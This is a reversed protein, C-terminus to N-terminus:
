RNQKNFIGQLSVDGSHLGFHHQTLVKQWGGIKRLVDTDRNETASGAAPMKAEYKQSRRRRRATKGLKKLAAGAAPLKTSLNDITTAGWFYGM